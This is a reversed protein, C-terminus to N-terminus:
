NTFEVIDWQMNSLGNFTNTLLNVGDTAIQICNNGGAIEGHCFSGNAQQYNWIGYPRYFGFQLESCPAYGVESDQATPKGTMCISPSDISFIYGNNNDYSWLCRTNGPAGSCFPALEVNILDNAVRLGLTPQERSVIRFVAPYGLTTSSEASFASENGCANVSKM